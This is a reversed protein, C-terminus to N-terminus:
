PRVRAELIRVTVTYPQCHSTLTTTAPYVVGGADRYDAFAITTRRSDGDFVTKHQLRGTAPDFAWERRRAGSTAAYTWAGRRWAPATGAPPLLDAHMEVIDDALSAWAGARAELGPLALSARRQGNTCAVEFVRVGLPSLCGAAFDGSAPTMAAYGLAAVNITPWWWHPRFSALVTQRAELRAGAPAQFPAAPAAPPPGPPVTSCSSLLCSSLAVAAFRLIASQRPAQNVLSPCEFLRIVFRAASSPVTVVTAREDNAQESTRKNTLQEAHPWM